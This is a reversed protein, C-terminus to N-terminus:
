HPLCYLKSDGILFVSTVNKELASLFILTSAPILNRPKEEQAWFLRVHKERVKPLAPNSIILKSLNSTFSIFKVLEIMFVVAKKIM